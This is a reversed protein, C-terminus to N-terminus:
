QRQLQQFAQVQRGVTQAALAPVLERLRYCRFEVEDDSDAVVRGAFDARHPGPMRDSRM